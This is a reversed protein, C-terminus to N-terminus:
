GTLAPVLVYGWVNFCTSFDLVLMKPAGLQRADYIGESDIKNNQNGM